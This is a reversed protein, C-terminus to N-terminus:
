LIKTNLFDSYYCFEIIFGIVILTSCFWMLFLFLDFVTASGKNIETSFFDKDLYRRIGLYTSIAIYFCILIIHLLTM